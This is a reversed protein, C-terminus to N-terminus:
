TTRAGSISDITKTSFTASAHKTHVARQTDHDVPSTFACVVRLCRATHMLLCTAFDVGAEGCPTKVQRCVVLQRTTKYVCFFPHKTRMENEQEWSQKTSKYYAALVGVFRGLFKKVREDTWLDLNIAFFYSSHMSLTVSHRSWAKLSMLSNAPGHM